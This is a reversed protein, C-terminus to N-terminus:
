PETTPTETLPQTPPPGPNNEVSRCAFDVYASLRETPTAGPARGEDALPDSTPVDADAVTTTPSTTAAADDPPATGGRLDALVADFDARIVDPVDDRIDEYAEVILAGVDDPPDTELRDNLDIMAQCFPSLRTPPITVTVAPQEGGAEDAPADDAPDTGSTCATVSAVLGIAALALRVTRRSSPM